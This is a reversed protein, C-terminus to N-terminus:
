IWLRLLNLVVKLFEKFVQVLLHRGFLEVAVQEDSSPIDTAKTVEGAAPHTLLAITRAAVEVGHM